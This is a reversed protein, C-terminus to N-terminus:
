HRLFFPARLFRLLQITVSQVAVPPNEASLVRIREPRSHPECVAQSIFCAIIIGLFYVHSHAVDLRPHETGVMRASGNGCIVDPAGCSLLAM